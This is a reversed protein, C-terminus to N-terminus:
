GIMLSKVLCLLMTYQVRTIKMDMQVTATFIVWKKVFVKVNLVTIKKTIANVFIVDM